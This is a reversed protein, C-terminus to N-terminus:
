FLINKIGTIGVPPFTTFFYFSPVSKDRAIDVGGDVPEGAPLGPTTRTGFGFALTSAIDLRARSVPFGGINSEISGNPSRSRVLFITFLLALFYSKGDLGAIQL